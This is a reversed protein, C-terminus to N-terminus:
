EKVLRKRGPSVEIWKGESEPRRGSGFAREWAAEFGRTYGVRASGARGRATLRSVPVGLVAGNGDRVQQIIEGKNPGAAAVYAPGDVHMVEGGASREGVIADDARLEPVDGHSVVVTEGQRYGTPPESARAAAVNERAVSALDRSPIADSPTPAPISTDNM